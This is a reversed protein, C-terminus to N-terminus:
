QTLLYKLIDRTLKCRMEKTLNHTYMNQAENHQLVRYSMGTAEFDASFGKIYSADSGTNAHDTHYYIFFSSQYTSFPYKSWSGAAYICLMDEVPIWLNTFMLTTVCVALVANLPFSVNCKM